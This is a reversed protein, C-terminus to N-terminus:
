TKLAFSMNESCLFITLPNLSQCADFAVRRREVGGADRPFAEIEHCRFCANTGPQLEQNFDLWLQSHVIYAKKNAKEDIDYVLHAM